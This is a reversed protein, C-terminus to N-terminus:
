DNISKKKSETKCLTIKGGTKLFEEIQVSLAISKATIVENPKLM